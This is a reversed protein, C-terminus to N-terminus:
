DQDDVIPGIGLERGTDIRKIAESLRIEFDEDCVVGAIRNGRRRQDFSKGPDIQDRVGGVRPEGRADVPGGLFRAAVVEKEQIGVADDLFVHRM